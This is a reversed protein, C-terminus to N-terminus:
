KKNRGKIFGMLGRKQTAGNKEYDEFYKRVEQTIQVRNDTLIAKELKKRKGSGLANCFDNMCNLLSDANTTGSRASNLAVTLAVTFYRVLKDTDKGWYQMLWDSFLKGFGDALSLPLFLAQAVAVPDRYSGIQMFGKECVKFVETGFRDVFSKRDKQSMGGFFDYRVVDEMLTQYARDDRIAACFRMGFRVAEWRDFRWKWKNGLYAALWDVEANHYVKLLIEFPQEFVSHGILEWFDQQGVKNEALRAWRVAEEIRQEPALRNLFDSLKQLFLNGQDNGCLFVTHFYRELQNQTVNVSSAFRVSFIKEFFSRIFPDSSNSREFEQVEWVHSVSYAEYQAALISSGPNRLILQSLIRSNLSTDKLLDMLAFLFQCNDDRYFDPDSNEIQDLVRKFLVPSISKCCNLTLQAFNLDRRDLSDSICRFFVKHLIEEEGATTTKSVSRLLLYLSLPSNNKDSLFRDVTENRQIFRSFNGWDFPAGAIVTEASASVGGATNVGSLVSTHYYEGIIKDKGIDDSHAFLYEYLKKAESMPLMANNDLITHLCKLVQEGDQGKEAMELIHSLKEPSTFWAKDAQYFHVLDIATDIDYDAEQMHEGIQKTFRPVEAPDRMFLAVVNKVYNSISIKRNILNSKLEFVFKGTMLAQNYSFMAGRDVISQITRNTTTGFAYTTFTIKQALEEPLCVSLAHYWMTLNPEDDYLYVSQDSKVAEITAQLLFELIEAREATFFRFLDDEFIANKPEVVEIEPLPPPNSPANLEEETMFRRFFDSRIFNLANLMPKGDFVFAHIIYNGLRGSYDMGLYSAQALCYNGSSLRFYAANRPFSGEIQEWTPSYPLSALPRYKMTDTIERAEADTIGSSKSYVMFGKNPADGNKWSTYILQKARM